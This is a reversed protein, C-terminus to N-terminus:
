CGPLNVMSNVAQGNVAAPKWNPGEAIIKDVIGNLIYDREPFPNLANQGQMMKLYPRYYKVNYYVVKGEKNVVINSLILGTASDMTNKCHKAFEQRLYDAYDMEASGYSAPTKLYENQYVPENNMRVIKTHRAAEPIPITRNQAQDYFVTDAAGWTFTNGKYATTNEPSPEPKDTAKAMLFTCALLAPVVLFYKWTSTPRDQKKTLM